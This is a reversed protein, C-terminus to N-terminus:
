EAEAIYTGAIHFNDASSLTFASTATFPVDEIASGVRDTSWLSMYDSGAAVQGSIHYTKGGAPGDHACGDRFVIEHKSSFPLRLYYQGTGFSTINDMDVQIQFHVLNGVTKVYTGTFLPSGTFAPQAGGTGGEVVFSTELGIEGRTALKNPNTASGMYIGDSVSVVIHEDFAVLRDAIVRYEDAGLAM